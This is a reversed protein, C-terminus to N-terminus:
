YEHKTVEQIAVVVVENSESEIYIAKEALRSVEVQYRKM